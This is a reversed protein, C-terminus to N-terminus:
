LVFGFLWGTCPQAAEATLAEFAARYGDRGQRWESAEAELTEFAARYGDRGRRWESAEVELSEFAARYGDYSQRLQNTDNQLARSASCRDGLRSYFADGLLSRFRQFIRSRTM